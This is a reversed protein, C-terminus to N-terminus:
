STKENSFCKKKKLSEAKQVSDPYILKKQPPPVTTLNKEWNYTRM